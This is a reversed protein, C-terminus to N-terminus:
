LYRRWHEPRHDRCGHELTQYRKAFVRQTCNSEGTPCGSNALLTTETYYHLARKLRFLMSNDLHLGIEKLAEEIQQLTVFVLDYEVRLLTPSAVACSLIGSVENLFDAATQAQNANADLEAFAVERHKIRDTEPIDM